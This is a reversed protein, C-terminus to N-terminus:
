VILRSRGPRAVSWRRARRFCYLVAHTPSARSLGASNSFTASFIGCTSSFAGAVPTSWEANGSIIVDIADTVEVADKTSLEVSNGSGDREFHAEVPVNDDEEMGMTCLWCCRLPFAKPMPFEIGVTRCPLESEISIRGTGPVGASTVEDAPSPSNVLLSVKSEWSSASSLSASLFGLFKSSASTRWPCSRTAGGAPRELCCCAACWRPVSRPKSQESVRRRSTCCSM